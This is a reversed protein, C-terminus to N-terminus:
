PFVRVNCYVRTVTVKVHTYYDIQDRLVVISIWGACVCACLYAHIQFECGARHITSRHRDKFMVVIRLFFFLTVIIIYRNIIQIAM